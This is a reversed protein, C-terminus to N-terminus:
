QQSVLQQHSSVSTTATASHYKKTRHNNNNKIAFLQQIVYREKMRGVTAVTANESDSKVFFCLM